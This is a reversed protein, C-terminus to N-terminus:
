GFHSRGWRRCQLNCTIIWCCKLVVKGRPERRQKMLNPRRQDPPDRCRNSWIKVGGCWMLWDEKREDRGETKEKAEDDWEPMGWKIQGSPSLAPSAVQGPKKRGQTHPRQPLISIQCLKGRQMELCANLEVRTIRTPPTCKSDPDLPSVSLTPVWHSVSLGLLCKLTREARWTTTTFSLCVVVWFASSVSGLM